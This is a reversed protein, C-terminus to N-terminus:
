EQFLGIFFTQRCNPPCHPIRFSSLDDRIGMRRKSRKGKREDRLSEASARWGTTHLLSYQLATARRRSCTNLCSVSRARCLAALAIACSFQLRNLISNLVLQIREGPDESRECKYDYICSKTVDSVLFNQSYTCHLFTNENITQTYM